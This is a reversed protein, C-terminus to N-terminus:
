LNLEADTGTNYHNLISHAVDTPHLAGKPLKFPANEWFPTDVAPPRVLTIKMKRNEKQLIKVMAELGAKATTYAGMRPLIIKDVYAGIFMMQGDKEMLNISSRAALYAGNLNAAMTESWDEPDLRDLPNPRIGGAAYVVLAIGDTEFAALRAVNAISDPDNANFPYTFDAESPIKDEERAAGFVRWGEQKLLKTLESGIGGSAGWILADPM